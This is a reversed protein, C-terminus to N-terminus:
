GIAGHRIGRLTTLDGCYALAPVPRPATRPRRGTQKRYATLQQEVFARSGLVGGDSFYRLRCRLVTASDLQGGAKIVKTLEEFSINARNERPGAGTSFLVQRYANHADAWTKAGMVFCLGQQAKASGALAEAYGCFRYDKPDRVLGARICNLDVYAATAETARGRAEVLVSKFRSATCRLCISFRQKILKMYSSLDGMQALQQRRWAIGKEGGTKLQDEIVTLRAMQYKTPSPYLTRYRRLLETDSPVTKQPVRLVIHFHNSLITYTLVEVGCYDALRAIFQRFVDCDSAAFLREGNVTRSICHYVAECTEPPIKIRPQRM